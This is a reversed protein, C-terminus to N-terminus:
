PYLVTVNGTFSNTIGTYDTYQIYYVYVGENVFKGSQFRGDWGFDPDTTEFLKRGVRDVVIMLYKKPAFDIIPKFVANFDNSEPTFANPIKLHSEVTVSVINSISIGPEGPGGLDAMALVKYQLEGPQSGNIVSEIRESWMRTGPGVTQIDYFEGTSSRRQITYGAGGNVYGESSNWNLTVIQDDLSSSLLISTGTDSESIVLPEPCNPPQFISQVKYEYSYVSTPFQDRVVRTSQNANLITTVESFPSDENSRKMIRFDRVPGEVDASFQLEINSEDIVTVYDVAIFDPAEPYASVVTDIASLSTLGNLPVTEIYYNYTTGLAIADDSYILQNGPLIFGLNDPSGDAISRFVEYGSINGEWGEYANWTIVNAPICPDFEASVHVARHVNEQFLSENGASDEATVSYALNKLGSTTHLYEFTTSSFSFERTFSQDPNMKYLHYYKISDDESPEWEIQVGDSMHDVSVRIIDPIGPTEQASSAMPNVLLFVPILM